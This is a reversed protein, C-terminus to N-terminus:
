GFFVMFVGVVALFIGMVKISNLREKLILAAFIFIFINSTQNLAAATSAQTYKMGGLWLMLSLYTGLISGWFTYKWGEKSLASKVIEIRKSHLLLQIILVALGGFIRMETVWLLPSRELLPKVMIIGVGMTVMGLTGYMLGLLFSRQDLVGRGKKTAATLIASIILAAGIIQLVSMTEGLWLYALIIISPSYLCDVIATMGAGLLNLSKFFFTDSIGIGLAGSIFLLWYDSMPAPYFLSQEFLYITPIFLLGSLVNKYTNLAIPHVREGSRKFLIVAFAWTIATATALTEGLYPL